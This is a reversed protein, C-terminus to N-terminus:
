SLVTQRPRPCAFLVASTPLNKARARCGLLAELAVDICGGQWLFVFGACEWPKRRGVERIEMEDRTAKDLIRWALLPRLFFILLCFGHLRLLWVSLRRSYSLQNGEAHDHTLWSFPTTCELDILLLLPLTIGEVNKSQALHPEQPCASLVHLYCAELISFTFHVAENDQEPGELHLKFNVLREWSISFEHKSSAEM